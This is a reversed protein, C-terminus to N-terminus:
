INRRRIICSWEGQHGHGNGSEVSDLCVKSPVYHEAPTLYVCACAEQKM